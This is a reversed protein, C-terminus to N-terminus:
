ELERYLDEWLERGSADIYDLVYDKTCIRFLDDDIFEIKKYMPKVIIKGSEDYLGSQGNISVKFLPVGTHFDSIEDYEIPIVLKLRKNILGYKKKKKVLISGSQLATIKDFQPEYIIEGLDNMLGVSGNLHFEYTLFTGCTDIPKILDLSCPLLMKGLSNIIGWYNGRQVAYIVENLNVIDDYIYSTFLEGFRNILAWKSNNFVVFNNPGFGKLIKCNVSLILAGLSDYLDTQGNKRAMITDEYPVEIDSYICPAILKGETNYLGELEGLKVRIYDYKFYMDLDYEPPVIERMNKDCVGWKGSIKVRFLNKAEGNTFATEIDEVKLLSHTNGHEDIRSWGRVDKFFIVDSLKLISYMREPLVKNGLKDILGKKESQSSITVKALGDFYSATEKIDLLYGGYQVMAIEECQTNFDIGDGKFDIRIKGVRIHDEFASILHKNFEIIYKGERDILAYQREANEERFLIFLGCQIKTLHNYAPIILNGDFDYLNHIEEERVELLSESIVHVFRHMEKLEQKTSLDYLIITFYSDTELLARDRGILEIRRYRCPIVEGDVISVLGIERGISVEILENTIVKEIRDYKIESSVGSVINTVGWRGDKYVGILDYGLYTIEQFDLVRESQDYLCFVGFGSSNIHFVVRGNNYGLIKDFKCEALVNGATTIIGKLNANESILYQSDALNLLRDYKPPIITNGFKDLLGWKNGNNVLLADCLESISIYKESNVQNTSFIFLQWLVGTKVKAVYDNIDEIEDFVPDTLEPNHIDMIGWQAGHKYALFSTNLVNLDEYSFLFQAKTSLSHIILTSTETIGEAEMFYMTAIESESPEPYDPGDDGYFELFKEEPSKPNRIEDPDFYTEEEEYQDYESSNAFYKIYNKLRRVIDRVEKISPNNSIETHSKDFFVTQSLKFIGYNLYEINSYECNILFEKKIPDFLGNQETIWNDKTVKLLYASNQYNILKTGVIYSEIQKYDLPLIQEGHFSVIGSRGNRTVKIVRDNLITVSNYIIPIIIKGKINLAGSKQNLTVVSLGHSFDTAKDYKPPIVLRNNKDIFGFKVSHLIKTGVLFLGKVSDILYISDYKPAAILKGEIDYLATKDDLNFIYYDRILDTGVYEYLCNIILKGNKDIFGRKGKRTVIFGIIDKDNSWPRTYCFEISDYKFDIVSIGNEDIVGYKEYSKYRNYYYKTLIIFSDEDRITINDQLLCGEVNFLSAGVQLLGQGLVRIPLVENEFEVVTTGDTEIVCWLNKKRVKAFGGSFPEVEDYICEIATHYNSDVYGWKSGKRYPKLKKTGKNLNNKM